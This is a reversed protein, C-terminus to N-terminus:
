SRLNEGIRPRREERLKNILKGFSGVVERLVIEGDQQEEGTVPDVAAAGAQRFASEITWPLSGRKPISRSM